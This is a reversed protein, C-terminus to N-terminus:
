KDSSLSFVSQAKRKCRRLKEPRISPVYFSNYPRKVEGFHQELLLLNKNGTIKSVAGLFSTDNHISVLEILSGTTKNKTNIWKNGSIVVHERGKLTMEGKKNEKLAISHEKCYNLIDSNAAKRIESIPIISNVLANDSPLPTRNSRRDSKTYLEYNKERIKQESGGVVPLSGSAGLSDRKGDKFNSIGDRIKRRIQPQRLFLEDNSKFKKILGPRIMISM